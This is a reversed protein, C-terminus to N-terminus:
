AHLEPGCGALGRPVSKGETSITILASSTTAAERLILNITMEANLICTHGRLKEEPEETSEKGRNHDNRSDLHSVRM